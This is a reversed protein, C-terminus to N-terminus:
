AGEIGHLGLAGPADLGLGAGGLQLGALLLSFSRKGPGLSHKGLDLGAVFGGGCSGGFEFGAGGSGHGLRCLGFGSKGSDLALKGCRLGVKGCGLGLAGGDQGADIAHQLLQIHQFGAGLGCSRCWGDGRGRRGFNWRRSRRGEQERGLGVFRLVAAGM